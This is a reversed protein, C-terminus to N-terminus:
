SIGLQELTWNIVRNFIMPNQNIFFIGVGVLIAAGVAFGLLKKM